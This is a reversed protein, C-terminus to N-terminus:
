RGRDVELSRGDDAGKKAIRVVHQEAGTESSEEM